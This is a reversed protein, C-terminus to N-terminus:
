PYTQYLPLLWQTVTPVDLSKDGLARKGGVIGSHNSHSAIKLKEITLRAVDRRWWEGSHHYLKIVITEHIINKKYIQLFLIM